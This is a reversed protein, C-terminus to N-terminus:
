LLAFGVESNTIMFSRRTFLGSVSQRRSAETGVTARCEWHRGGVIAATKMIVTLSVDAHLNLVFVCVSTDSEAIMFLFVGPRRLVAARGAYGSVM